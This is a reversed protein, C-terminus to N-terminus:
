LIPPEPQEALSLIQLCEGLVDGRHKRPGLGAKTVLGQRNSTYMRGEYLYEYIVLRYARPGRIPSLESVGEHVAIVRGPVVPWTLYWLYFGAFGSASLALLFQVIM